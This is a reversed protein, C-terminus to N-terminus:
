TFEWFNLQQTMLCKKKESESTDGYQKGCHSYWDGKGSVTCFLEMKEVDEIFGHM